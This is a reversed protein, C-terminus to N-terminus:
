AGDKRKFRGRDRRWKRFVQEVEDRHASIYDFWIDGCNHPYGLLNNMSNNIALFVRIDLDSIYPISAIIMELESREIGMLTHFCRDPLFDGLGMARLCEFVIRKERRSLRRLSM